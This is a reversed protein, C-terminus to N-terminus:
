RPCVLKKLRRNKETIVRAVVCLNDKEYSVNIRFRVNSIAYSCDLDKEQTLRDKQERNLLIDVIASLDAGTLPSYTETDNMTSGVTVLNGDIRLIPPQGVLLHLDSAKKDAAIQFLNKFDM